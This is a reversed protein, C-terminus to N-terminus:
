SGCCAFLVACARLQFFGLRCVLIPVSAPRMGLAM